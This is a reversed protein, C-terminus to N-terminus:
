NINEVDIMFHRLPHEEKETKKFLDYLDKIEKEVAVQEYETFTIKSGQRQDVKLHNSTSYYTHYLPLFKSKYGIECNLHIKFLGRNEIVYVRRSNVEEVYRVSRSGLDFHLQFDIIMFLFSHAAIMIPTLVTIVMKKSRAADKHFLWLRIILLTYTATLLFLLIWYLIIRKEDWEPIFQLMPIIYFIFPIVYVLVWFWKRRLM